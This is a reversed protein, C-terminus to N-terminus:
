ISELFLNLRSEDSFKPDEYKTGAQCINCCVLVTEVRHFKVLIQSELNSTALFSFDNCFPVTGNAAEDIDRHSFLTGHDRQTPHNVRLLAFYKVCFAV